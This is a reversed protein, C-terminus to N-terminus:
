ALSTFDALSFRGDGGLVQDFGPARAAVQDYTAAGSLLDHAAAILSQQGSSDNSIAWFMM